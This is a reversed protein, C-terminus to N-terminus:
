KKPKNITLTIYRWYDKKASLYGYHAISVNAYKTEKKFIKAFLHAPYSLVYLQRLAPMVDKTLNNLKFDNYGLKPLVRNYYDHDIMAFGPCNTLESIKQIAFKYQEPLESLKKVSYDFIVIKGGPKLVRMFEKITKPPNSTHTFTELTFVVDFTADEFPLRNYDAIQFNIKAASKRARKKAVKISRPVLDVGELVAGTKEAIRLSTRGEGCGADLVKQNKTIGAYETLYDIMAECAHPIYWYHKKGYYGFHRHGGSVIGYGVRSGFQEYYDVTKKVILSKTLGKM